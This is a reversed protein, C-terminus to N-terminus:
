RVRGPVVLGLEGPRTGPSGSPRSGTKLYQGCRRTATSSTMTSLSHCYQHCLAPPDDLVGGLVDSVPWKASPPTTPAHRQRRTGRAGPSSRRFRPPARWARSGYWLGGALVALAAGTLLAKRFNFKRAASGAPAAAVAAKRALRRRSPGATNSTVPPFIEPSTLCCAPIGQNRQWWRYSHRHVRAM